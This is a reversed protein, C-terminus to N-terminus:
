WRIKLGAAPGSFNMDEIAGGSGLDYDLYRWAVGIDGWGFSYSVGLVAQWTLDSDGTGMDFHYPVAWKGHAGLNFQGRIGVIADWQDVSTSRNGTLPPPTVAGFNGTFEWDLEQRFSALRAGFLLASSVHSSDALQFTGGFTVFTSKLDFELSSAVTAPLTVGGIAVNRTENRTEGVDLYVIDTYAGWRSKRFEFSGQATMKLHDLITGIDIGITTDGVPLNTHGGIDPFWGYITAAFHWDNSSDQASAPPAALSSIGLLCGAIGAAIPKGRTSM